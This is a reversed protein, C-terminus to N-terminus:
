HYQFISYTYPENKAETAKNWFNLIKCGRREPDGAAQSAWPLAWCLQALHLCFQLPGQQCDLAPLQATCWPPLHSSLQMHRCCPAPWAQSLASTPIESRDEILTFGWLMVSDWNQFSEQTESHDTAAPSRPPTHVIAPRLLLEWRAGPLLAGHFKPWPCHLM